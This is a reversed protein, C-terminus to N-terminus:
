PARVGLRILIKELKEFCRARTPGLSGVKMGLDRAIQEYSRESPEMFLASLLKECSGGLEALARRVLHREEWETVDQEPPAHLSEFHEAFEPDAGPNRRKGIRWCERHTVTILWAALRSEDALSHLSRFAITFVSQFVDDCDADTMGYRRPISYVLRGYRDVLESWASEQGRRCAAILAHDARRSM